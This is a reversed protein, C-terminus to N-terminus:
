QSFNRLSAFESESRKRLRSKASIQVGPAILENMAAKSIQSDDNPSQFGAPTTNTLESESYAPTSSRSSM